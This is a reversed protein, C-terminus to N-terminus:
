NDEHLSEMLQKFHSLQKMKKDTKLKEAEYYECLEYMAKEFQERMEVIIDMPDRPKKTVTITEAPSTVPLTVTAEEGIDDVYKIDKAEPVSSLAPAAATVKIFNGKTPEKILGHNTLNALVGYLENQAMSRGKKKYAVLIQNKTATELTPVCDLVHKAIITLQNTLRDLKAQQM